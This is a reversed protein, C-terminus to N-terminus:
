GLQVTMSAKTEELRIVTSRAMQLAKELAKTLGTVLAMMTALYM